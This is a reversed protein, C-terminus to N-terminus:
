IKQLFNSVFLILQRNLTCWKKEIDKFWKWRDFMSEQLEHVFTVFSFIHLLIDLWGNITLFSLPFHHLYLVKIFLIFSFNRLVKQHAFFCACIQQYSKFPFIWVCKRIQFINEKDEKHRVLHLIKCTIFLCFIHFDLPFCNQRLIIGFPVDSWSFYGTM